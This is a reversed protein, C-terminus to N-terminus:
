LDPSLGLGEWASGPTIRVDDPLQGIPTWTNPNEPPIQGAPCPNLACEYAVALYMVVEGQEYTVPQNDGRTAIEAWMELNLYDFGTPLGANVFNLPEAVGNINGSGSTNNSTGNGDALPNTFRAPGQWINGILEIPSSTNAFRLLHDYPTADAYVEDREFRWGSFANNEFRFSMDPLVVNNLYLGLNRMFFFANDRMTVGVNNATSDGSVQASFMSVMAGASGIFINHHVDSHGERINIQFNNDQFDQFSARWDIAAPGFVNHHIENNGGLQGLQIAETGTRLIRNNYIQWDRLQHQPQAQTSGAYIGESTIDHIYNDHIKVGEMIATGDNDTKLLLGAFGVESIEVCSIEFHTAGGGISLGSVSERVFDDDVRIGYTGQSNAFAGGRHGPFAADGTESVPDYCGTITWNSGGGVSFLYHHNLGGVRVQGGLNTIILPKSPDRNPLNGLRIYPYHGAPIYLRDINQWDVNPFSAQVDIYYM